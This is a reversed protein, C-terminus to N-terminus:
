PTLHQIKDREPCVIEATNKKAKVFLRRVKKGASCKTFFGAPAGFVACKAVVLVKYFLQRACCLGHGPFM